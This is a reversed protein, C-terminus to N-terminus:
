RRRRSAAGSRGTIDTMDSPARGTWRKFANSFAAVDQYGLLWAVHSVSLQEDVLYRRALQLRLESLLGSFSSDERALHRALSRQSMGLRRAIHGARANGHPLVPIIANQVRMRVSSHEANRHSVAESCYALLLRNLYPDANLLPLERLRGPFTMEDVAAGFKIDCGFLRNLEAAGRTRQHVFLLRSPVLRVGTLERGLRLLSTMWFEIQHQDQYRSVGAHQFRLGFEKGDIVKQDLGENLLFSCRVGRRLSEILTSSSAFAYYYWGTQRLDYHRALHFGLLDDGLAAAVLNVLEMQRSVILPAGRDRIQQRTIRARKLLPELHVGEKTAREYALRALIGAARPVRNAITGPRDDV